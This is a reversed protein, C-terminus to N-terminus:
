SISSVSWLPQREHKGKRRLIQICYLVSVELSLSPPPIAFGTRSNLHLVTQPLSSSSLVCEEHVEDDDEEDVQM